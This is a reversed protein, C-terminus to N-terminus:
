LLDTPLSKAQVNQLITWLHLMKIDQHCVINNVLMSTPAPWTTLQTTSLNTVLDKSWAKKIM